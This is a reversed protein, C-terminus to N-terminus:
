ENQVILNKLRKREQEPLYYSYTIAYNNLDETNIIIDDFHYKYMFNFYIEYESAGLGQVRDINEVFVKWFEKNHVTEVLHFLELLYKKSFVMHHSIGSNDTYKILSPHLKQSHIFYPFHYERGTDFVIKFPTLFERKKIFILDADIVLYNESLTSIYFSAYLKLLQQFYWGERNKLSYPIIDIKKFPFINENVIKVNKNTYNEGTIIYLDRYEINKQIFKITTDIIELDNKGLPIVIDIM